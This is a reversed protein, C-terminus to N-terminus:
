WSRIARELAPIGELVKRYEPDHAAVDLEEMLLEHSEPPPIRVSTEAAKGEHETRITVHSPDATRSITVFAVVNARRCAIKISVLAGPDIAPYEVPLLYAAVRQDDGRFEIRNQGHGLASGTGWGLERALWSVVLLAQASTKARPEGAFRVEVSEVSQLHHRVEEVRRERELLERLPALRRWNLDGVGATPESAALRALRSLGAPGDDIRASDIILRDATELLGHLTHEDEPLRETWWVYVPLDPVLLPIAVSHLHSAARGSVRLTVQECCVRLEKRGLHCHASLDAELHSEEDSPQAVLVLVRSPHEEALGEIVRAAYRATDDHEAYVIMNLVSARAALGEGGGPEGAALYRLRDLESEIRSVDLTHGSWTVAVDQM